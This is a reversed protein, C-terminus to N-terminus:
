SKQQAPSPSDTPVKLGFANAMRQANKAALRLAKQLEKSEAIIPQTTSSTQNKAM